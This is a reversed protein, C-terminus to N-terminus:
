LGTRSGVIRLPNGVAKAYAPVEGRVLSGAGIVAGRGIKAGDLIVCNAGIWVDDEILIGGRSVGHGQSRIPLSRSGTEHNSAALTCNAAILVDNGLTVGNGSYITVGSNIYCNTGIIVNAAGGAFKIKVFSDVMSNAGIRVVNGRVSSEIDALPSIRATEDIENPM